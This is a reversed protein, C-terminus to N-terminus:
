RAHRRDKPRAWARWIFFGGVVLAVLFLVAVAGIQFGLWFLSWFVNM